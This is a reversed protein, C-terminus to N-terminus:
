SVGDNSNHSLFRSPLRNAIRLQTRIREVVLTELQDPGLRWRWNGTDTGPTNFRAESGLGLWDQIPVMGWVARSGLALGILRENHPKDEDVLCAEAEVRVADSLDSWWGMVTDSDHTSTYSISTQPHNEPLHENETGSGFAFQLIRMGPFGLASQLERTKADIPGLDEVVLPLDGLRKALAEFLAMGPGPCWCGDRATEDAAPISWYRVLGLFHDIRVTDTLELARRIRRVRWDFGDEAMRDWDYLPNGGDNGRKAIRM